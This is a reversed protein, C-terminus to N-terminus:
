WWSTKSVQQRNTSSSVSTNVPNPMHVTAIVRDLFVNFRMWDITCAKASADVCEMKFDQLPNMRKTKPTVLDHKNGVVLTPFQQLTQYRSDAFVDGRAKQAATIEAIWKKLNNYSRRNSQDYVFVLGIDKDTMYVVYYCGHFGHYFAARSLEYRPHGGVDIFEVFTNEQYMLVQTTCGVTWSPQKLESGNCLFHALSSKGVGSDGVIGIRVANIEM